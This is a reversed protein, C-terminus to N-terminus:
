AMGLVAGALLLLVLLVLLVLLWGVLFVVWGLLVRFM